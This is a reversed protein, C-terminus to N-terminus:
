SKNFQISQLHHIKLVQVRHYATVDGLVVVHVLPRHVVQGNEHVEDAVHGFRRPNEFLRGTVQDEDATLPDTAVRQGTHGGVGRVTVDM